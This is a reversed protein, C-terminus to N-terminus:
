EAAPKVADLEEYKRLIKMVRFAAEQPNVQPISFAGGSGEFGIIAVINQARVEIPDDARCEISITRPKPPVPEAKAARPKMGFFDRIFTEDM